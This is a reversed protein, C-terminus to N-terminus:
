VLFPEISWNDNLLFTESLPIAVSRKISEWPLITEKVWLFVVRPSFLREKSTGEAFPENKKFRRTPFSELVSGM